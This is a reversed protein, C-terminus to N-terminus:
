TTCWRNLEFTEKGYGYLEDPALRRFRDERHINGLEIWDQAKKYTEDLYHKLVRYVDPTYSIAKELLVSM